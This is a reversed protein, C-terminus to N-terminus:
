KREKIYEVSIKLAEEMAGVAEACLAIRADDVVQNVISLRMRPMASRLM